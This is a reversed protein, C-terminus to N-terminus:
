FRNPLMSRAQCVCLCARMCAHVCACACVRVCACACVCAYVCVGCVVVGDENMIVYYVM